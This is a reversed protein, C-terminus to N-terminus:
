LPSLVYGKAQVALRAQEIVDGLRSADIVDRQFIEPVNLIVAGQEDLVRFRMKEKYDWDEAECVLPRFAAELRARAIAIQEDTMM